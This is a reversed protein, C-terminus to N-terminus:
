GEEFLGVFGKLRKKQLKENEYTIVLYLVSLLSEESSFVEISKTRRKIEKNIRELQNTTYIYPRVPEPYKLFVTLHHLNERWYKVLGPYRKKWRESFTAFAAQADKQSDARYIPKLGAFVEEIDSRRVKTRAGRMAHVVCLQHDSSPFVKASAKEIGSLDDSVVIDIREVGREKMESFIEEWALSSEGSGGMVWFGLIERRGEFDTGQALYVPEKEYSGRRLSLFVADIIVSFYANKLPRMRWAEIEEAAVRTLKAISAHSYYTGYISEVVQQIKRTNVGCQFMILILDGLDVSARRKGPLVAPYFGGSRTRPVRLDELLGSQTLLAREYFGNGKDDTHEDLYLEREEAMLRQMIAKERQKVEDRVQAVIERPATRSNGM